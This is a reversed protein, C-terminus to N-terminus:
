GILQSVPSYCQDHRLIVAQKTAVKTFKMPTITRGVGQRPATWRSTWRLSTRAVRDAKRAWDFQRPTSRLRRSRSGYQPTLCNTARRRKHGFYGTTATKKAETQFTGGARTWRRDNAGSRCSPKRNDLIPNRTAILGLKSYCNGGLHSTFWEVRLCALKTYFILQNLEISQCSFM